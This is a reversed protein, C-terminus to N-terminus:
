AEFRVYLDFIDNNVDIVQEPEIFATKGTTSEDHIIGRIKRKHESPVSLVRRGNRFSEMNDTLWGNSRYTGILGKFIKDLERQKNGVKKRIKALAPSADPKIQNQDDIVREIAEILAPEFEIPQIRNFLTPYNKANM